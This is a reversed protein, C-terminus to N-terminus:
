WYEEYHVNGPHGRRDLLFGQEDLLGTVGVEAPFTPQDDNWEPLGIMRPNGCLFVHTRGSDLKNSLMSALEGSSVLDQIYRKEVGDERTPLVVYRYNPYREELRRHHDMYGLDRFFRVTVVSVISGTHGKRLLEPIMANHPAEGTGTALFVVDLGPDDVPALTYRGTIKPGLYIRDGVHKLALRPTLGPIRDGDPRVHVIYLEIENDDRPDWLYGRDDFIRGSISYSRRILKSRKTEDLGEDADDARSEWYGLGLTAYQGALHSVDPKDAHVRLVWLDEHSHDFHTITANYHQARLAVQEQSLRRVPPTSRVVTVLESHHTRVANAVDQSSLNHGAPASPSVQYITQDAPPQGPGPLQSRVVVHDFSLDPTRRDDFHVMPNGGVDTVADPRSSWLVTIQRDKELEGLMTSAVPSLDSVAGTFALVVRAGATLLALVDGVADDAGGVVLVDADAATLDDSSGHIRDSVSAAIPIEYRGQEPEIVQIVVRARQSREADEVIVGEDIAEIRDPVFGYQVTIGFRGPGNTPLTQEDPALLLVDAIGTRLSESALSLATPGGGLVILDHMLAGDPVPM